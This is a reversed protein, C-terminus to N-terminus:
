HIQIKNHALLLQGDEDSLGYDGPSAVFRSCESAYADYIATGMFEFYILNEPLNLTDIYSKEFDRATERSPMTAWYLNPYKAQFYALTEQTNM